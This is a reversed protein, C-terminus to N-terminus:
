YYGSFPTVHPTRNLAAPKPLAVLHGCSRTTWNSWGSRHKRLARFRIRRSICLHVRKWGTLGQFYARLCSTKMLIFDSCVTQRVWSKRDTFMAMRQCVSHIFSMTSRSKEAGERRSLEPYGELLRTTGCSAFYTLRSSIYAVEPRVKAVKNGLRIGSHHSNLSRASGQGCTSMPCWTDSTELLFPWLSWLTWQPRDIM